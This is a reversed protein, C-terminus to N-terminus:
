LSAAPVQVPVQPSAEGAARVDEKVASFAILPLRRQWHLPLPPLTTRPTTLQCEGLPPHPPVETIPEDVLDVTDFDM